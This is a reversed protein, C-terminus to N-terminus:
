WVFYEIDHDIPPTPTQQRQGEPCLRLAPCHRCYQPTPCAPYEGDLITRVATAVRDQTAQMTTADNAIAIISGSRAHYINLDPANSLNRIQMVALAYLRLQDGHREAIADLQEDTKYDIITHNHWRDIIGNMEVIADSTEITWSLRQEVDAVHPPTQGLPSSLYREIMGHLLQHAAGPLTHPYQTLARQLLQTATATPFHAHQECVLHFVSGIARAIRGEEASAHSDTLPPTATTDVNAESIVRTSQLSVVFTRVPINSVLETTPTIPEVFADIGSRRQFRYRRPCQLLEHVSSPALAIIPKYPIHAVIPLPSQPTRPAQWATVPAVETIVEQTHCVGAIAHHTLSACLDTFCSKTAKQSATASIMLWLKARTLAVYWLAQLENHQQRELEHNLMNDGDSAASNLEIIRGEHSAVNRTRENRLKFGHADAVFVASFELGKAAHVTMIQIADPNAILEPTTCIPQHRLRYLLFEVLATVDPPQAAECELILKHLMRQGFASQRDWFGSRQWIFWLWQSPQMYWQGHQAAAVCGVFADLTAHTPATNTVIEWLNIKPYQIRLQHVDHDDLIALSTLLTRILSQETQPQHMTVALHIANRIEHRLYFPDDKGLDYPIQYTDLAALYDDLHSRGRLLIAMERFAIGYTRHLELMRTAIAQAELQRQAYAAIRVCDANVQHEHYGSLLQESANFEPPDGFRYHQLSRNAVDLIPPRSRLNHSLTVTYDSQNRMHAINEVKAQRWVYIAQRPDGAITRRVARNDVQPTLHELLHAQATSTDQYEDVLIYRVDALLDPNQHVLAPFISIIDDLNLQGNHHLTDIRRAFNWLLMNAYLAQTPTHDASAHALTTDVQALSMGCGQVDAIMQNIEYQIVPSNWDYNAITHQFATLASQWGDALFQEWCDDAIRAYEIEDCFPGDPNLNLAISRRLAQRAAYAHFTSIHAEAMDISDFPLNAQRVAFRMRARMETAAKDTFTLVVINRPHIDSHQQLIHVYRKSLTETKGTGAGAIVCVTAETDAYIAKNQIDVFKTM